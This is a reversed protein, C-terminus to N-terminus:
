EACTEWWQATIIEELVDYHILQEPYAAQPTDEM